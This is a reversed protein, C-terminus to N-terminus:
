ALIRFLYKLMLIISLASVLYFIPVLVTSNYEYPYDVGIMEFLFFSLML